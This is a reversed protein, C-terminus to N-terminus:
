HVGLVRFVSPGFLGGMLALFVVNAIVLAPYFM